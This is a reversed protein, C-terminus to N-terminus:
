VGQVHENPPRDTITSSFKGRSKVRLLVRAPEEKGARSVDHADYQETSRPFSPVPRGGAHRMAGRSLSYIVRLGDVPWVGLLTAGPSNVLRSPLPETTEIKWSM